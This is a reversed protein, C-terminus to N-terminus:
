SHMMYKSTLQQIFEKLKRAFFFFSGNLWVGLILLSAGWQYQILAGSQLESWFILGSGALIIAAALLTKKGKYNFIIFLLTLLALIVSIWSTWLPSHQSLQVSGCVSIASSYALICFPCKPILAIIIGTFVPLKHIHKKATLRKCAPCNNTTTAM